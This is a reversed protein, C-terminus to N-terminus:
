FKKKTKNKNSLINYIYDQILNLSKESNTKKILYGEKKFFNIDKKTIM